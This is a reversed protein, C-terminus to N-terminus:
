SSSTTWDTGSKRSQGDGLIFFWDLCCLASQESATLQSWRATALSTPLEAALLMRLRQTHALADWRLTSYSLGMMM